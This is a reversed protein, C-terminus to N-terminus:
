DGKLCLWKNNSLVSQQGAPCDEEPGAIWLLVFAIVAALAITLAARALANM